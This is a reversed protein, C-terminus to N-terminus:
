SRQQLATMFAPILQKKRSIIGALRCSNNETDVGFAENILEDAKDGWFLLETEEELPQAVSEAEVGLAQAIADALKKTNGTQTYYRVAIKM